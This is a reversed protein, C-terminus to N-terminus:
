CPQLTSDMRMCRPVGQNPFGGQMHRQPKGTAARAHRRPKGKQATAHVHGETGREAEVRSYKCSHTMPARLQM